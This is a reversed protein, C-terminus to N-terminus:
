EEFQAVFGVIRPRRNVAFRGSLANVPVSTPSIGCAYGGYASEAAAASEWYDMRRCERAISTTPANSHPRPAFGRIWSAGLHSWSFRTCGRGPVNCERSLQDHQAEAADPLRCERQQQAMDIEIGRLYRDDRAAFVLGANRRVRAHRKDRVREGFAVELRDELGVHLLAIEQQVQRDFHCAEREQSMAPAAANEVEVRADFRPRASGLIRRQGGRSAGVVRQAFLHEGEPQVLAVARRRYHRHARVGAERRYEDLLCEDVHRRVVLEFERLRRAVLVPRRQRLRQFDLDYVDGLAIRLNTGLALLTALEDVGPRDVSEDTFGHLRAFHSPAAMFAEKGDIGRTVAESAVRGYKEITGAGCRANAAPRREFARIVSEQDRMAFRDRNRVMQRQPCVIALDRIPRRDVVGIM